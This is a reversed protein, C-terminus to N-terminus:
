WYRRSARWPWYSSPRAGMRIEMGATFSVNHMTAVSDAGFSLNDLVEIRWLMWSWQRFQIGIGFPTTLLTSNHSIGADDGFDIQAAGLGLLYYPRVKSDGWPYYILNIDSVSYSVKGPQAQPTSFQADPNARGYRWELGWYYDFDWGIRLGGILVNEQNVRGHVLQDGLLPGVFWDVHYPRNLWSTGEMPNGRDTHRGDTSSHRFGLARISDFPRWEELRLISPSWQESPEEEFLSEWQDFKAADSTCAECAEGSDDTQLDTFLEDGFSSEEEQAIALNSCAVMILLPMLFPVLAAWSSRWELSQCLGAFWTQRCFAM